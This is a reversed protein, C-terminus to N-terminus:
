FTRALRRIASLSVCAPQNFVRFLRDGAPWVDGSSLAVLELVCPLRGLGESDKIWFEGGLRSSDPDKVVYNFM